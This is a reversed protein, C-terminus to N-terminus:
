ALHTAQLLVVLDQYDAAAVTLDDNFEFLVIIEHPGIDIKGDDTYPELMVGVPVQGGYGPTSPVPDGDRLVLVHPDAVDSQYSRYYSGLKAEGLLGIHSNAPWQGLWESAGAATKGGGLIAVYPSTENPRASLYTHIKPGGPGQTMESGVVYTTWSLECNTDVVGSALIDFCTEIPPGVTPFGPPSPITPGADFALAFLLQTRGYVTIRSVGGGQVACGTREGALCLSEGVRWHTGDSTQDALTSLDIRISGNPTEADVWAGALPLDDPGMMTVIHDGDVFRARGSAEVPEPAADPLRMVMAAGTAIAVMIAVLLIIGVPASVAEEDM